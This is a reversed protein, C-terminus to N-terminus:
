WRCLYENVRTRAGVCEPLAISPLLNIDIPCHVNEASCNRLTPITVVNWMRSGCTGVQITNFQILSWFENGNFRDTLNYPLSIHCQGHFQFERDLWDFQHNIPVDGALAICEMHMFLLYELLKKIWPMDMNWQRNINGLAFVTKDQVALVVFIKHISCPPQNIFCDIIIISYICKKIVGGTCKEEPYHNTWILIVHFFIHSYYLM